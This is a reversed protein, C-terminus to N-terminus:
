KWRGVAVWSFTPYLNGSNPRGLTVSTIGATSYISVLVISYADGSGPTIMVAPTATFRVPFTIGPNFGGTTYLNGAASTSRASGSYKGWCILTGDPFKCYNSGSVNGEPDKIKKAAGSAMYM